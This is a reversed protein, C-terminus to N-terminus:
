LTQLCKKINETIKGTAEPNEALKIIKEESYNDVVNTQEELDM